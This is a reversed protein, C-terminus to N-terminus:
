PVDLHALYALRLDDEGLLAGADDLADRIETLERAREGRVSAEVADDAFASLLERHARRVDAAGADRTLGLIEFYDAERVLGLREDLRAHDLAEPDAAGLPALPEGTREAAGVVLLGYVTALVVRDPMGVGACVASLDRRGDLMMLLGLASADLGLDLALTEPRASSSLRVYGGLGGVLGELLPADLRDLVGSVLIRALSEELQVAEDCRDHEELSWQGRRWVFASTVIGLVQTRIAEPLATAKLFGAEVLLRGVRRPDKAALSRAADYQTRTLLGRRVLANVLRDEPESSCAFVLEGQELWLQKHVRGQHLDVRGTYRSRHLSWLMRPLELDSLEGEREVSLAVRRRSGASREAGTREGPGPPMREDLQAHTSGIGELRATSDIHSNERQRSSGGLAGDAGPDTTLLGGAFAGSADPEVDVPPAPELGLLSRELEDSSESALGNSRARLRDELLDLTRGLRGISPDFSSGSRRAEAHRETDALLEHGLVETRLPEEVSVATSASDPEPLPKPPSGALASLTSALLADEFPEELFQDAGLDLVDALDHIAGGLRGCLTVPISVGRRMSRLEQMVAGASPGEACLMIAAPGAGERVRGTLEALGCAEVPYGLGVVRRVLPICRQAEGVILIPGSVM